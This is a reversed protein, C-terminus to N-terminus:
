RMFSSTSRELNRVLNYLEQNAPTPVGLEIGKKIIFGNLYEIETRQQREVDQLMSSKNCKTDVIVQEVFELLLDATLKKPYPAVKSLEQLVHPTIRLYLPDHIIQGNKCGIIATLPNIICNAALKKWLVLDIDSTSQAHLGSQDLLEALPVDNEVLTKGVGAHEVKFVKCDDSLLSRNSDRFAGHTTSIFTTHHINSLKNRIEDRVALSGNCLIIIRSDLELSNKVSDIAALADNAKTAVLLNRIKDNSASIIDAPIKVIRSKADRLLSVEISTETDAKLLKPEHHDRLMVRLPYSPFAIRVSAAFLLGISGGGLIHIPATHIGRM